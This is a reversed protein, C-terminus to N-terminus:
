LCISAKRTRHRQTSSTQPALLCCRLVHLLFDTYYTLIDDQVFPVPFLRTASCPHMPMTCHFQRWLRGARMAPPRGLTCARILAGGSTLVDSQIIVTSGIASKTIFNVHVTMIVQNTGRHLNDTDVGNMKQHPQTIQRYPPSSLKKKPPPYTSANSM